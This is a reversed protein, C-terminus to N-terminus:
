PSQERAIVNAPWLLIELSVGIVAAAAGPWGPHLVAAWTKKECFVKEKDSAPAHNDFWVLRRRWRGCVHVHMYIKLFACPLLCLAGLNSTEPLLCRRPRGFSASNSLTKLVTDCSVVRWRRRRAKGCRGHQYVPSNCSILEGRTASSIRRCHDLTHTSIWAQRKRKKKKLQRHKQPCFLCFALM